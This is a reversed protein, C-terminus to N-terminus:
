PAAGLIEDALKDNAKGLDEVASIDPVTFWKDFEKDSWRSTQERTFYYDETLNERKPEFFEDVASYPITDPFIIEKPKKNKADSVAGLIFALVAFSILIVCVAVTLKTNQQLFNKIREKINDLAQM